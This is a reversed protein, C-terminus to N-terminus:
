MSAQRMPAFQDRLSDLQAQQERLTRTLRAVNLRFENLQRLEGDALIVNPDKRLAFRQELM